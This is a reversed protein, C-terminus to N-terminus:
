WFRAVCVWCVSSHQGQICVCLSASFEKFVRTPDMYTHSVVACSDGEANGASTRSIAGAISPQVQRGRQVTLLILSMKIGYSQSVIRLERFSLWGLDVGLAGLFKGKRIVAYIGISMIIM